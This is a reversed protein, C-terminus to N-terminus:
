VAPRIWSSSAQPRWTRAFAQRALEEFPQIAPPSSLRQQWNVANASLVPDNQTDIKTLFDAIALAVISDGKGNEQLNAVAATTPGEWSRIASNSFRLLLVGFAVGVVAVLAKEPIPGLWHLASQPVPDPYGILPRIANIGLILLDGWNIATMSVVTLFFISFLTAVAQFAFRAKSFRAAIKMWVLYAILFFVVLFASLSLVISLLSM